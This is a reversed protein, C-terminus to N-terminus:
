QPRVPTLQYDGRQMFRNPDEGEQNTYYRDGGPTIWRYKFENTDVEIEKTFPNVYEEQGTLVLYNDNMIEANNHRTRAAIEQDIRNMEQLVKVAFDARQQQGESEKLIWTPNFRLSSRMIDMVSRWRNWEAAPARFALTRTNKWTLAARMDVIGTLLVERYRVGGETYEITAGAADHQFAMQDGGVQRLLGNTYAQGRQMSQIEGPLRRTERITVDTAQPHQARILEGLYQDARTLQKVVAGQYISGPGFFGGGIGVHAYVIDPLIHFAVTGRQDSMLLLDCKAELANLPGGAQTANVRFIGGRMTWGAPVLITFAQENPEPRRSFAIGAGQARQQAAAPSAVITVLLALLIVSQRSAM